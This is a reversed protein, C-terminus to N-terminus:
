QTDSRYPLSCHGKGVTVHSRCCCTGDLYGFQFDVVIWEGFTETFCCMSFLLLAMRGLVMSKVVVNGEEPVRRFWDFAKLGTKWQLLRMSEVLIRM